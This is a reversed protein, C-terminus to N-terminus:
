KSFRYSIGVLPVVKSRLGGEDLAVLVNGTILLGKFPKYKFGVGANDMVYTQSSLTNVSAFTGAKPVPVTTAFLRPGNIVAQGLFEAAFTLSRNVSYDVGGSYLLSSPLNQQVGNNPNVFLSSTSNWQYGFNVNPTFKRGNRSFVMYPKIGYAGTGLYNAEDGTPLRAEGGIALKAHERNIVNGKVNLTVDGIGLASGPLFNAGLSRAPLANGFSDIDFETGSSHTKLTVQSFPVLVSIDVNKTLGFSGIATFQDVRLDIRNNAQVFATTGGALPIQNVTDFHKLSVGDVSNFEFRQYNFSIFSKHYGLTDGRQTLITGLSETGAAITGSPSITLGSGSVATALPLQSLQAALTPSLSGLTQTGSTSARVATPIECALNVNHGSNFGPCPSTSGQASATNVLLCLSIVALLVRLSIHM